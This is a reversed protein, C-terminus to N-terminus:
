EIIKDNLLNKAEIWKSLFKTGQHQHHSLMSGIFNSKRHRIIEKRLLKLRKEFQMEYTQRDYNKRLLEYGNKQSKKWLRKDQYLQIAKLAFAEAQDEIFGNWKTTGEMGEAGITSTISPTGYLMADLLKGKQGAGFRLPALCIRSNVFAEKKDAIWGKILFGTQPNHLHKVAETAYPGYIELKAQPLEKRIFPWIHSHLYKVADLNPQHRFNGITMFHQRQDFEPLEAIDKEKPVDILFPLYLLLSADINFQEILLTYEFKSIILSLDSRFISAIERKSVDNQIFEMWDHNGEKLAMERSKRLFHLDETDLIRIAEPCTQQVRWGYQEETLFRDFVVMGPDLKNLADDFSSSNLEIDFCSVELDSFDFSLDSKAAASAFSVTYGQKLFFRILQMMRSGAATAEPEPWILGIILIRNNLM